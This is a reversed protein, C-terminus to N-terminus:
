LVINRYNKKLYDIIANYFNNVAKMKVMETVIDINPYEVYGQREGSIITDPHSPDYIFRREVYNYPIIQLGDEATFTTRNGIYPGGNITRTTSANAINDAIIDMEIQLINLIRLWMEIPSKEIVIYNDYEIINVSYDYYIILNRLFEINQENYNPVIVDNKTVCSTFLIFVVIIKFYLLFRNFIM